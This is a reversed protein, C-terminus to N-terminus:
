RNITAQQLVEMEPDRFVVTAQDGAITVDVFGFGDTMLWQSAPSRYTPEANHHGGWDPVSATPSM